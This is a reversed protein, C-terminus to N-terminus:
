NGNGIGRGFYYGVVILVLTRLEQVADIKGSWAQIGVTILYFAFLLIALINTVLDKRLEMKQKPTLESPTARVKDQNISPMTGSSHIVNDQKM